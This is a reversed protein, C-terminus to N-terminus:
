FNKKFSASGAGAIFARSSSRWCRQHVNFNTLCCSKTNFLEQLVTGTWCRSGQAGSITGSCTRGLSSCLVTVLLRGAGPTPGPGVGWAVRSWTRGCLCRLPLFTVINSLRPLRSILLLSVLTASGFNNIKSEPELKSCLKPELEPEM